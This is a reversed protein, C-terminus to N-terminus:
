LASVDDDDDHDYKMPTPPTAGETSPLTEGSPVSSIVAVPAPELEPQKVDQKPNDWSGWLSTSSSEYTKKKIPTLKPQGTVRKHVYLAAGLRSKKQQHDKEGSGGKQKYGDTGEEGENGKSGKSKKREAM